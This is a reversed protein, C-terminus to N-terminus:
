LKQDLIKGRPSPDKSTVGRIRLFEEGSFQRLTTGNCDKVHVKLGPGTGEVVASLGHAQTTSDTQFSAVAEDILKQDFKEPQEHKKSDDQNDKRTQNPDYQQRASGGDGENRKNRVTTPFPIVNAFPNIKM